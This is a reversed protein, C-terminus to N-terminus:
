GETLRQYATEDLLDSGDLTVDSLRIIWGEGYPDENIREPHSALEENIAAIVGSAPSYLDAAAKVSEIVGFREGPALRKGVEPLEVFIVDGLQSQAHDTIGVTAGLQERQIWEHSRTFRYGSLDSM